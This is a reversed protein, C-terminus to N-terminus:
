SSRIVGRREENGHGFYFGGRVKDHHSHTQMYIRKM